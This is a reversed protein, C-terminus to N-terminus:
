YLKKIVYEVLNNTSYFPVCLIDAVSRPGTDLQSMNEALFLVELTNDHEDSILCIPYLHSNVLSELGDCVEPNKDCTSYQFAIRKEGLSKKFNECRSCDELGIVKIIM